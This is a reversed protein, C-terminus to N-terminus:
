GVRAALDGQPLWLPARPQRDAAPLARTVKDTDADLEEVPIGARGAEYVLTTGFMRSEVYVTGAHWKERLGRAEVQWHEFHHHAPRPVQDLLLSTGTPPSPGRPPSRTTPPPASLSAALDVTLFRLCDRLLWPQASATSSKATSMDFEPSWYRWGDARFLGGEAPRPAAAVRRRVRVAVAHRKSTTSTAPPAARRPCWRRASRGAWRTPPATPSRPSASTTWRGPELRALRGSLDDEHWRTNMVVVIGRPSLRAVAVSEWWSWVNERTAASM